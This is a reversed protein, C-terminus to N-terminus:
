LREHGDWLGAGVHHHAHPRAHRPVGLTRRVVSYEDMADGVPLPYGPPTKTRRLRLWGLLALLKSWLWGACRAVKAWWPNPAASLADSTPESGAPLAAANCCVPANRTAHRAAAPVRVRSLPPPATLAVATACFAAVLVLRAIM